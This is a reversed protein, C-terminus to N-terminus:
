LKRPFEIGNLPSREATRYKPHGAKEAFLVLIMPRNAIIIGCQQPRIKIMRENKKKHNM